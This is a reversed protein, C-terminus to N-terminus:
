IHPLSECSIYGSFRVHGNDCRWSAKGWDHWMRIMELGCEPCTRTPEVSESRSM